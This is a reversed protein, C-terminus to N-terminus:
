DYSRGLMDTVASKNGAKLENRIRTSSIDEGEFKVKEPTVVEFGYRKSLKRLLEPNGKGKKGFRFDPGVIVKKMGLKKVLLKKVFRKASMAAEKKGFPYLVIYDPNFESLLKIKGDIDYLNGSSPMPADSTPEFTFVVHKLDKEESIMSLLLKHGRHVGDFKGITIVSDKIKIKKLDRIIEM